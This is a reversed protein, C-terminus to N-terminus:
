EYHTSTKKSLKQKSRKVRSQRKKFQHVNTQMDRQTHTHRDRVFSEENITINMITAIFRILLLCFFGIYNLHRVNPARAAVDRTIHGNCLCKGYPTFLGYSMKYVSLMMIIFQTRACIFQSKRILWECSPWAWERVWKNSWNIRNSKIHMLKILRIM